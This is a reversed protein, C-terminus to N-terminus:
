KRNDKGFWKRFIAEDYNDTSERMASLMAMLSEIIRNNEDKTCLNGNRKVDDPKESNYDMDYIIGHTM